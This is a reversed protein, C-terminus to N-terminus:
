RFNKIRLMELNLGILIPTEPRAALRAGRERQSIGGQRAEYVCVGPIHSDSLSKVTIPLLFALGNGGKVTRYGSKDFTMHPPEFHTRRRRLRRPAGRGAYM